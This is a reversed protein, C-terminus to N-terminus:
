STRVIFAGPGLLEVQFHTEEFAGQARDHNRVRAVVQGLDLRLLKQSPAIDFDHSAADLIRAIVEAAAKAGVSANKHAAQMLAAGGDLWFVPAETLGDKRGLELKLVELVPEDLEEVAALVANWTDSNEVGIMCCLRVIARHQYDDKVLRWQYKEARKRLFMEYARAPTYRETAILCQVALRAVDVQEDEFLTARCRVAHGIGIFMLFFAMSGAVGGLLEKVRSFDAPTAETAVLSEMSFFSRLVACVLQRHPESLRAFSPL